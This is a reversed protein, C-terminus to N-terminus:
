RSLYKQAKPSVGGKIITLNTVCGVSYPELCLQITRTYVSYAAVLAVHYNLPSGTKAARKAKYCVQLLIDYGNASRNTDTASVPLNASQRLTFDSHQVCHKANPNPALKSHYGCLKARPKLTLHM